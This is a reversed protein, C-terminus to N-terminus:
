ESRISIIKSEVSEKAPIFIELLGNRMKSVASSTDFCPDIVFGVNFNRKAIGRIIMGQQIANKNDVKNVNSIRVTNNVEEILIDEPSYGALAFALYFGKEDCWQDFRPFKYHTFKKNNEIERYFSDDSWILEHMKLPIAVRGKNNM